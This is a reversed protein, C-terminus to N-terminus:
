IKKLSKGWFSECASDYVQRQTLTLVPNVKSFEIDELFLFYFLFLLFLCGQKPFIVWQKGFVGCLWDFVSVFSASVQFSMFRQM